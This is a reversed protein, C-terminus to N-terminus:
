LIKKIYTKNKLNKNISKLIDKQSQWYLKKVAEKETLWQYESHEPSIRVKDEAVEALFVPVLHISDSNALYFENITNVIYFNKYNLGTEEKLERLATEYAKEGRDIRGTVPQWIGPYIDVDKSRKLLLYKVTKNIRLMIYCEVFKTVIKSM